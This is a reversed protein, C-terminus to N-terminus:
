NLVFNSGDEFEYNSGDEFEYNNLYTDYNNDELLIDDRYVDFTFHERAPYEDNGDNQEIFEELSVVNEVVQYDPNIVDGYLIPQILIDGNIDEVEANYEYKGELHKLDREWSPAWYHEIRGYTFDYNKNLDCDENKTNNFGFELMQFNEDAIYFLRGDVVKYNTGAIYINFGGIYTGDGIEFGNIINTYQESLSGDVGNLPGIFCYDGILFEGILATNDESGIEGILVTDMNPDLRSWYDRRTLYHEETFVEEISVVFEFVYNHYISCQDTYEEIIIDDDSIKYQMYSVYTQGLSTTTQKLYTGNDGDEDADDFWIRKIRDTGQIITDVNIVTRKEEGDMLYDITYTSGDDRLCRIELESTDYIFNAEPYFDELALNMYRDYSYVFGLPHALPRVVHEYFEDLLSGKVSFNFPEYETLEFDLKTDGGSAYTAILDYIYQISAINGKKEKFSRFTIFHEENIYNAINFILDTNFYGDGYIANLDNIRKIIKRNLEIKQLVTYLDDLYIKILEDKINENDYANKIDISESSLEELTEVFIDMADKILPINQINDPTIAGFINQINNKM